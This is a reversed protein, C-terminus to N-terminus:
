AEGSWYPKLHDAEKQRQIKIWEVPDIIHSDVLDIPSMNEILAAIEAGTKPKPQMLERLEEETWPTNEWDPAPNDPPLSRVFDLVKRQQDLTLKHLEEIIERELAAM